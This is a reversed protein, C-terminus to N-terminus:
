LDEFGRNHSFFFFNSAASLYILLTVIFQLLLSFASDSGGPGHQEVEEGVDLPLRARGPEPCAARGWM